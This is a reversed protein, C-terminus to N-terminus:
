TPACRTSATAVSGFLAIEFQLFDSLVVGCLNPIVAFAISVISCILLTQGM